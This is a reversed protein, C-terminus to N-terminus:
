RAARQVARIFARGIVFVDVVSLKGDDRLRRDALSAIRLAETVFQNAIFPGEERDLLGLSELEEALSTRAVVRGVTESNDDVSGDDYTVLVGSM